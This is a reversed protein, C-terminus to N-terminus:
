LAPLPTHTGSLDAPGNYMLNYQRSQYLWQGDRKVYTDLYRSLVTSGTGERDRLYEHLYWHGSATDGDISLLCSSPLMLAFEFGSMMQQWLALINARGTVPQGLVNWSGDEAWNAIWADADNRNVADIYRAMLNRLALEDEIPNM